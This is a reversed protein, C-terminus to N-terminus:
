TSTLQDLCAQGLVKVTDELSVDTVTSVSYGELTERQIITILVSGQDLRKLEENVFEVVDQKNTLYAKM